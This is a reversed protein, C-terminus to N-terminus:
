GGPKRVKLKWALRSATTVSFSVFWFVGSVGVSAGLAGFMMPMVVSSANITMLRLGLAEGQRQQPTIQHMTSMVMPQVAGLFLGLLASLAGMTWAEQMFPYLGLLLGTMMMAVGLIKWEPFRAAIAPLLLRILAASLAFVGLVAGIASASIGREHGIVPVMFTHVDWSSSLFWNVLMLRRFLPAQLLDWVRQRGSVDTVVPVPLEKVHRVWFWSLLPLAALLAFAARFGVHDIMLGAALPGLFNSAAPGIALWSFARKLEHHDRAAQGVHRQLAIIAAGAAGGCCLASACMVPFIPWVVSAAVGLSAVLVGLMMPRKFGHRDAFRGAPISLFIQTLAFCSLLVGVSAESQGNRLALLPAAMRFGTMCAHLCIQGFILRFLDSHM